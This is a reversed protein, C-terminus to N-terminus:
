GQTGPVTVAGPHLLQLLARVRLLLGVSRRAHPLVHALRLRHDWVNGDANVDTLGLHVLFRRGHFLLSQRSWGERGKQKEEEGEDSLAVARGQTVERPGRAAWWETWYVGRMRVPAVRLSHVSADVLKEM